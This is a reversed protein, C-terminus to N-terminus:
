EWDTKNTGHFVFFRWLSIYLGKIVIESGNQSEPINKM